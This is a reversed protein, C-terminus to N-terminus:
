NDVPSSRIPEHGHINLFVARYWSYQSFSCVLTGTSALGLSLGDTANPKPRKRLDKFGGSVLYRGTRHGLRAEAAKSWVDLFRGLTSVWLFCMKVECLGSVDILYGLFVKSGEGASTLM